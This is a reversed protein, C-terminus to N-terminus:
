VYPLIYMLSGNYKIGGQHVNIYKVKKSKSPWNTSPAAGDIGNVGMQDGTLLSFVHRVVM